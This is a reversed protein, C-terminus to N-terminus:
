REAVIFIVKCLFSELIRQLFTTFNEFYYTYWTAGEGNLLSYYNIKIIM